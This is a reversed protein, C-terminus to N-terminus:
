FIKLRCSIVSKGTAETLFQVKANHLAGYHVCLELM